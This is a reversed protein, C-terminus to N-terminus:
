FLLVTTIHVTTINVVLKLKAANGTRQSKGCFQYLM